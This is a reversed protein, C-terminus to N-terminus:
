GRKRLGFELLNQLPGPALIVPLVTRPFVVRRSRREIGRVLAKGAESVPYKKRLFKPMKGNEQQVRADTFATRVMDTDIFTFYAVGVDTDTGILEGRLSDALAEVAAKSAAYHAMLPAHMAAALSAIPLVYGNREVVYPLTARLTRWVGLFNIEITREFDEPDIEMVTGVPAIGANAIVVDIGGLRETTEATARELTSLDRVDTECWYTETPLERALQELREPELGVLALKAGKAALQHAVEAGIGRAPGTIFVTKGAVSYM